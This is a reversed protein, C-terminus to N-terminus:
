HAHSRHGNAAGSPCVLVPAVSMHHHGACYCAHGGRRRATYKTFQVAGVSRVQAPAVRLAAFRHLLAMASFQAAPCADDYRLLLLLLLLLWASMLDNLRLSVPHCELRCGREWVCM